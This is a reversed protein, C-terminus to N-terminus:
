PNCFINTVRPNCIPPGTNICCCCNTSSGSYDVAPVGIIRSYSFPSATLTSGCGGNGLVHGKQTRLERVNNRGWDLPSPVWICLMSPSDLVDHRSQTLLLTREFEPECHCRYSSSMPLEQRHSVFGGCRGGGIGCRSIRASPRPRSRAQVRGSWDTHAAASSTHLQCTTTGTDIM